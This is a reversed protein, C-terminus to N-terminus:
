AAGIYAAWLKQANERATTPIYFPIETAIPMTKGGSRICALHRPTLPGAIIDLWPADLSALFFQPVSEPLFAKMFNQWFVISELPQAPDSPVRLHQPQVKSRSLKLDIEAAAGNKLGAFSSDVAYAIRCAEESTATLGLTKAFESPAINTPAPSALLAAARDRATAVIRHVEDSTAAKRCDAELDDLYSRVDPLGPSTRACLHVCVVMPYKTRGKGDSSDWMRGLLTNTLDNWLFVHHFPILPDDASGAEWKGSDVVGGIGHVYLSEKAAVLPESDLGLDDIHDNWGLHKGFVGVHASPTKSGLLDSIKSTFSSLWSAM